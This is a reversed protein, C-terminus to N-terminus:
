VRQNRERLYSEGGMLPMVRYKVKCKDHGVWSSIKYRVRRDKRKNIPALSVYFTLNNSIAGKRDIKTLPIDNFLSLYSITFTKYTSTHTHTCDAYAVHLPFFVSPLILIIVMCDHDYIFENSWNSRSALVHICM